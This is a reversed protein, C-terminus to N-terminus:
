LWLYGLASTLFFSFDIEFNISKKEMTDMTQQDLNISTKGHSPPAARLM